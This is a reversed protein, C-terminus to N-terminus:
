SISRNPRLSGPKTRRSFLMPGLQHQVGTAGAKLCLALCGDGEPDGRASRHLSVRRLTSSLVVTACGQGRGERAQLRPQGSPFISARRKDGGSVQLSGLVNGHARSRAEQRGMNYRRSLFFASLRRSISAQNTRHCALTSCKPVRLRRSIM